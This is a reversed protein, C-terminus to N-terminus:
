RDSSADIPRPPDQDIVVFDYGEAGVKPRIQFRTRVIDAPKHGAYAEELAAMQEQVAPPFYHALEKGLSSIDAKRLLRRDVAHLTGKLWGIRLRNDDRRQGVRKVPRQASLGTIYEVRGSKSIAAVEIQFYDLQRAYEDPTIDEDFLIEWQKEHAREVDITASGRREARPEEGCLTAAAFAAAALACLANM